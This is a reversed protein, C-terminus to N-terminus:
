LCHLVSDSIRSTLAQCGCKSTNLCLHWLPTFAPAQQTNHNAVMESGGRSSYSWLFMKQPLRAGPNAWYSEGGSLWHQDLTCPDRFHPTKFCLGMQSLVRSPPAALWASPKFMSLTSVILPGLGLVFFSHKIAPRHSHSSGTGSVLSRPSAMEVEGVCTWWALGRWYALCRWRTSFPAM